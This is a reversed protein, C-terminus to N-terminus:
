SVLWGVLLSVLHSVSRGVLQSRPVCEKKFHKVMGEGAM